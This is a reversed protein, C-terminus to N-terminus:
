DDIERLIKRLGTVFGRPFIETNYDMDKVQGAQTAQWNHNEMCEDSIAYSLARKESETLIGSLSPLVEISREESTEFQRIPRKDIVIDTHQKLLNVEKRYRNREAIIQGFLARVAADPIRELLKNDQPVSTSRSTSSLPKKISTNYKAAWAEILTRYHKNRTARLAEYAPGGKAASVRGIQTISFDRQGSKSYMELIANLKDLNKQTRLVKGDKLDALIEDINIDM